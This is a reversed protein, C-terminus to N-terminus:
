WVENPHPPCPYPKKFGLGLPLPHTPIGKAWLSRRHELEANEFAKLEIEWQVCEIEIKAKFAADKMMEQFQEWREKAAQKRAAVVAPDEPIVELDTRKSMKGIYELPGLTYGNM